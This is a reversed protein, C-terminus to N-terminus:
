KVTTAPQSRQVPERCKEIAAVYKQFRGYRENENGPFAYKKNPALEVTVAPTSYNVYGTTFGEYKSWTKEGNQDLQIIMNSNVLWGPELEVMCAPGSNVPTVRDRYVTAAHGSILFAASLVAVLIKTKM